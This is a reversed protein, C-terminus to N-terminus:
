YARNRRWTLPVFPKANEKRIMLMYAPHRQELLDFQFILAKIDKSTAGYKEKLIEIDGKSVVGYALFNEFARRLAPHVQHGSLQKSSFEGDTLLWGFGAERCWVQLAAFRQINANNQMFSVPKLEVIVIRNDSLQVLVDPFYIKRVGNYPLKIAQEAYKKVLSSNELKLYFNRELLTEHHVDRANKKSHFKGSYCGPHQKVARKGALKSCDYNWFGISDPWEIHNFLLMLPDAQM